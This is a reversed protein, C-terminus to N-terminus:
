YNIVRLDSTSTTFENSALAIDMLFEDHERQASPIFPDDVEIQGDIQSLFYRTSQLFISELDNHSPCLVSVSGDVMM